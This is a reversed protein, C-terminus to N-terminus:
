SLSFRSSLFYFPLVHLQLTVAIFSFGFSSFFAWELVLHNFLFPRRDSRAPLVRPFLQPVASRVPCVQHM